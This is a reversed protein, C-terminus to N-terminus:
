HGGRSWADLARLLDDCADAGGQALLRASALAGEALICASAVVILALSAPLTLWRRSM